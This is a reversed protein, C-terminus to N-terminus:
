ELVSIVEGGTKFLKRHWQDAPEKGLPFPRKYM